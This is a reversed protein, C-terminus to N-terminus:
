LLNWQPTHCVDHVDLDAILFWTGWRRSTRRTLLASTLPAAILTAVLSAAFLQPLRQTGPVAM